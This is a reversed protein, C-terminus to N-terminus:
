DLIKMKWQYRTIASKLDNLFDKYAQSGDRYRPWKVKLFYMAIVDYVHERDETDLSIPKSPDLGSYWHDIEQFYKVNQEIWMVLQREQADFISSVIDYIGNFASDSLM